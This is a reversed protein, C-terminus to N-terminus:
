DNSTQGWRLIGVEVSVDYDADNDIDTIDMIMVVIMRVGDDVYYERDTAFCDDSKDDDDLMFTMILMMVAKEPARLTFVFVKM